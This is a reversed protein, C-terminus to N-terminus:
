IDAAKAVAETVTQPDQEWDKCFAALARAAPSDHASADAAALLDQYRRWVAPPAAQLRYLDVLHM